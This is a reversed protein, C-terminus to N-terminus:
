MRIIVKGNLGGKSVLMLAENIQTLTFIRQDIDPKINYKEVIETVRNLQAGDSRVFMFRYEKGQREATLDYKRGVLSFLFRKFWSFGNRVSFMKNPATKLSLLKGGKKLVSLEHHFEGAGLTDIVYDMGSLVEWYNEKRYDIYRDVGMNLFRERSRENGTVVVRLGMSLAIPVAVQGFGGSAGTILLTKGPKAELEETLGQYATLGALPIAAATIFDYGSPMRAVAEKDVAVYEAFAGIKKLPLRTYVRDGAQFEKVNKGTKEVIGSCENGLTLPMTYDQILRVSGTIQLIELPNVAAAKVKILIENEKPEPVPIENIAVKIEKSYKKIQAVKM